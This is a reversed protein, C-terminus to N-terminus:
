TAPKEGGLLAQAPAGLMQKRLVLSRELLPAGLELFRSPAMGLFDHAERVFHSYDTYGPDIARAREGRDTSWIAHLSRLFRARRLLLKPAFGFARAALREVTRETAGVAQAMQRVSQMGPDILAATMRTVSDEGRRQRAFCPALWRDFIAPVEAHGGYRLSFALEDAGEGLVEHAAGIRNAWDAAPTRSLRLWGLPTIGVGVVVGRGSDSWSVVSTPGFLAVQPVRVAPAQGIRVTWDTNPTLLIRLNFWAPQFVDHHVEGDAPDVEYLHYGSVFPALEDAPRWYAM